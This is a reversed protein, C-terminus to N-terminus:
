TEKINGSEELLNSMSNTPPLKSSPSPIKTIPSAIDSIKNLLSERNKSSDGGQLNAKVKSVVLGFGKKQLLDSQKSKTAKGITKLAHLKKDAKSDKNQGM